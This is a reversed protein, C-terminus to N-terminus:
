QMIIVLGLSRWQVSRSSPSRDASQESKTLRDRSEIWLAQCSVSVVTKDYRAWVRCSLATDHWDPPHHSNPMLHRIFGYECCVFQVSSHHAGQLGAALWSRSASARSWYRTTYSPWSSAALDTWNLKGSHVAGNSLMHQSSCNAFEVESWYVGIKLTFM